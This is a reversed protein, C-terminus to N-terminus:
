YSSESKKHNIYSVGILLTKCCQQQPITNYFKTFHKLQVLWCFGVFVALMELQDFLGVLFTFLWNGFMGHSYFVNLTPSHAPILNIILNFKHLYQILSQNNLKNGFVGQQIIYLIPVKDKPVNWNKAILVASNPNGLKYWSM